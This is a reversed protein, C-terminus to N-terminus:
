ESFVDEVSEVVAARRLWRCLIGCDACSLIREREERNPPLGRAELVALIAHAEGEAKGEAKGEVKGESFAKRATPGQWQYGELRIMQELEKLAGESLSGQILDSYLVGAREQLSECATLAAFAVEAALRENGGRGHMVASLVGLEPCRAAVEVEVVAPVTKPGLVMPQVSSGPGIDIRREAWRAVGEDPTLV